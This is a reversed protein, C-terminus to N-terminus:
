NEVTLPLRAAVRAGGQARSEVRLSGGLEEARERMSSLGVGARWAAPLGVGDDDVALYLADDLCLWVAARRAQAHRVVNTLAETAIRYAAVEAAAPLAPLSDPASLVIQVGEVSSLATARERLAGVLGLQDLAPPRLGYVLRRVDAIAEQTQTKFEGLLRDAEQVDSTLYNRAADVTLNFSALQPGLGDHLDRRLRRREEERATVLRQRSAQLDATLRAAHVAPGAQHALNTLLRRDSASFAEGAARPAVLLQGILEGRFVLPFAEGGARKGAPSPPFPIVGEEASPSSRPLPPYEAAIRMGEGERVSIAAYPLRLSEAVSRALNPLVEAPDGAAELTMALRSLVAWPDDREGYMLRNVSRQLRQRLPLALLAAAVAAIMATAANAGTQFILALGGVILAYIVLVAGTLSGYVLTRNIVLDIDWLRYRMIAVGFSVPFLLSALRLALLALVGALAPVAFLGPGLRNVLLNPWGSVDVAPLIVTPLFYVLPTLAAALLGVGAWKIQQKEVPTAAHNFRYLQAYLGTGVWVALLVLQVSLPWAPPSLPIDPFFIALFCGLMWAALLAPTWRPAFRGDPFLYLTAVSSVLGLLVIVNVALRWPVALAVSDFTFALPLLAGNTVLMLAVLLAVPDNPRRVYILSAVGLHVLVATLNVLAVLAAILTASVGADSLSQSFRVSLLEYLAPIGALALGLVLLALVAWGARAWRLWRHGQSVITTPFDRVNM